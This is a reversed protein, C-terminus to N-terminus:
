NGSYFWTLQPGRHMSKGCFIRRIQQPSPVSFHVRRGAPLKSLKVGTAGTRGTQSLTAERFIIKTRFSCFVICLRFMKPGTRESVNHKDSAIANDDDANASPDKGDYYSDNYFLRRNIVQASSLSPDATSESTSVVVIQSPDDLSDISLLQGLGTGDLLVRPELRELGTGARTAFSKGIMVLGGRGGYLQKHTCTTTFHADDIPNPHIGAAVLGAIHTIDALLFAGVEDAIVRFRKWDIERSYATTGCIILKPKHEQALQRAEDYNIREDATLGYGVADFIQGSISAKSGHTLHGGSDLDMGLLKDGPNMVGFMVVENASTASMPQVNAYRAGFVSKCRDIALQEIEDIHRCGAHFRRGPYGEATVNMPTMAECILASPDAISSSAVMTLVNAQRRYENELIEFLEPDARQLREVAAAAFRALDSTSTTNIENTTM